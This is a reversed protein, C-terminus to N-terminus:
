NNNEVGLFDLSEVEWATETANTGLIYKFRRRKRRNSAILVDLVCEDTNDELSIVKGTGKWAVVM